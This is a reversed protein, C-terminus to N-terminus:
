CTPYNCSIKLPAPLHKRWYCLGLRIAKRRPLHAQFTDYMVRAESISQGHTVGGCFAIITKRCDTTEAVQLIAKVRSLGEATLANNNLRKGLVVVLQDFETENM